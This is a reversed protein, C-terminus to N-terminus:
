SNHTQLTTCCVDACCQESMRQQFVSRQRATGAARHGNGSMQGENCPERAASVVSQTDETRARCSRETPASRQPDPPHCCRCCAPPATGARAPGPLHAPMAMRTSVPRGRGPLARTTSLPQEQIATATSCRGAWGM